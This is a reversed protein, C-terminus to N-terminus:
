HNRKERAGGPLADRVSGIFSQLGPTSRAADWILFATPQVDAGAIPVYAVGKMGADQVSEPVVTVGFGAAVLAVLTLIQGSYQRTRPQFGVDACMSMVQDHYAHSADRAFVLFPEDRLAALSIRRSTAMPHRAPICAVYRELCVGLSEVGPPALPSNIFGADLSGSKVLEIQRQSVTETFSVEIHPYDARFREMVKGLGRYLMVATFGVEIRGTLGAAISRAFAATNRAHLLTERARALMVQGVPTLVVHKSDREFLKLGLEEELQKIAKSLPPQTMHMRRAARGFHLEESLVVFFRLLKLDLESERM